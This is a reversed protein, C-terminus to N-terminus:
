NIEEESDEKFGGLLYIGFIMMIISLVLFFDSNEVMFQAFSLATAAPLIFAVLPLCAPCAPVIFAILTGIGGSTTSITQHKLSCAHHRFTHIQLTLLIGFLFSTVVLLSLNLKPIVEFWVDLNQMGGISFTQLLLYVLFIVSASFVITALDRGHNLMKLLKIM